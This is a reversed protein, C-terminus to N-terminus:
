SAGRAAVLNATHTGDGNSTALVYVLVGKLVQRLNLSASNNQIETRETVRFTVEVQKGTLIVLEGATMRVVRGEYEEAVIRLARSAIAKGPRLEVTLFGERGDLTLAAEIGDAARQFDLVAGEPMNAFAFRGDAGLVATMGTGRVSVQVGAPNTNAVGALHVQGSTVSSGYGGGTLSEGSCGTLAAATLAAAFLLLIAVKKM